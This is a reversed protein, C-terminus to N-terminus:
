QFKKIIIIAKTSGVEITILDVDVTTTQIVTGKEEDGTGDSVILKSLAYECGDESGLCLLANIFLTLNDDILNFLM